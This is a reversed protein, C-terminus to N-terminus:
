SITGFEMFSVWSNNDSGVLKIKAGLSDLTIGVGSAVVGTSYIIIDSDSTRIEISGSSSTRVFTFNLGEKVDPLTLIINQAFTNTNISDSTNQQINGSAIHNVLVRRRGSFSWTEEDELEATALSGEGLEVIDTSLSSEDATYQILESFSLAPLMNSTGLLLPVGLNNTTNLGPISIPLPVGLNDTTLAM